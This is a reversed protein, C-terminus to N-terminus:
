ENDKVAKSMIKDYVESQHQKVKPLDIFTIPDIDPPSSYEFPKIESLTIQQFQFKAFDRFDTASASKCEDCAQLADYIIDWSYKEITCLMLNMQDRVHRSKSKAIRQIFQEAMDSAGLAELVDNRLKEIKESKKRKHNTNLIFQGKGESVPLVDILSNDKPNYVYINGDKIDLNVEHCVSYTGLPLSYRNGNFRLTNNKLVPTTIINECPMQECTFAIVPILHPKEEVFVQAPIRKIIEHEKGNGTRMLWSDFDEVWQSLNTFIRGKAFNNKVFKVGSEVMGKGEPDSKRCVYVDLNHRAKCREFEHTFIIDGYNESYVILRDQDIVLQRPRGGLAEFCAELSRVFDIATFHKEQWVAFKFRSHALIFLVFHIKKRRGNNMLANYVGFDAQMQFGPPLEEVAGYEREQKHRPLNYDIRIKSVFYRVTRSPYKEKYHEELWDQIQAASPDEKEQLWKVIIDKRDGLGSEYQRRRMQNYQDQTMNWYQNVTRWNLGLQKAVANKSYGEKRKQQIRSYMKFDEM